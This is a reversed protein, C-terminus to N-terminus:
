IRNQNKLRYPRFYLGDVRSMAASFGDEIVRGGGIVEPRWVLGDGGPKFCRRARADVKASPFEADFRRRLENRESGIESVRFDKREDVSSM